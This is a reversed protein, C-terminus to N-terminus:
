NNIKGLNEEFATTNVGQQLALTIAINGHQYAQEKSGQQNYLQSLLLHLQASGPLQETAWILLDHAQQLKHQRMLQESLAKLNNISWYNDILPYTQFGVQQNRKSYFLSIDEAPTASERFSAYNPLWKEAPFLLSFAESLSTIAVGYHETHLPTTTIFQNNNNNSLQLYLAKGSEDHLFDSMAKSHYFFAKNRKKMVKSILQHLPEGSLSTYHLDSALAIHANFFPQQSIFDYIINTSTPSLGIGIRFDATRFHETIYKNLEKSLFEAMNEPKASGAFISGNPRRIPMAFNIRANISSTRIGVIISEPALEREWRAKMISVSLDFLYDSDFLYIIPYKKTSLHYSKPLYIDISMSDNLVQSELIINFGLERPNHQSPKVSTALTMQSILLMSIFFLSKHIKM